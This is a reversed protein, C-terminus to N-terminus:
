VKNQQTFVELLRTALVVM